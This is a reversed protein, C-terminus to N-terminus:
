KIEGGGTILEKLHEIYMLGDILEEELYEIRELPTLSTNEELIQGYKNLGKQTQREQIKCIRSWYKKKSNM